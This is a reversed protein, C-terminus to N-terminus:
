VGPQLTASPDPARQRARARCGCSRGAKKVWYHVGGLGVEVQHREALWQQADKLRRWRGRRRETRLEKQAKGPLQAARGRGQHLALLIELSSARWSTPWNLDNCIFSRQRGDGRDM